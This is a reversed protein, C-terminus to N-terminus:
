AVKRAHRKVVALSPLRDMYMRALALTSPSRSRLRATRLLNKATQDSINLVKAAEVVSGLHWWGAVVDLERATLESLLRAQRTM